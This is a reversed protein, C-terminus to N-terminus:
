SSANIINDWMKKIRDFQQEYHNIRALRYSNIENEVKENTYELFHIKMQELDKICLCEKAIKCDFSGFYLELKQDVSLNDFGLDDVDQLSM